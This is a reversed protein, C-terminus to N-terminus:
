DVGKFKSLAAIVEDWDAVHFDAGSCSGELDGITNGRKRRGLVICPAGECESCIYASRDMRSIDVIDDPETNYIVKVM